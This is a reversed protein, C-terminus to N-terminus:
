KLWMALDKAVFCKKYVFFRCQRDRIQVAQKARTVADLLQEKSWSKGNDDVLIVKLSPKEHNV